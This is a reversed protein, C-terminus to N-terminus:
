KLGLYQGLKLAAKLLAGKTGSSYTLSDSWVALAVTGASSDQLRTQAVQPLGNTWQYGSPDCDLPYDIYVSGINAQIYYSVTASGSVPAVGAVNVLSWVNATLSSVTTTVSSGNAWTINLRISTFTSATYGSVALIPVTFSYAIGSTVNFQYQHIAPRFAEAAFTPVIAATTVLRNYITAGSPPVPIADPATTFGTTSGGPAAKIGLTSPSFAGIPSQFTAGVGTRTPSTRSNVDNFLTTFAQTFNTNEYYRANENGLSTVIISVRGLTLRINQASGVASSIANAHCDRNIAGGLATNIQLCGCRTFTVGPSNAIVQICDQFSCDYFDSAGIVNYLDANRTCICFFSNYWAQLGLNQAVFSDCVCSIFQISRTSGAQRLGMSANAIAATPGIIVCGQVVKDNLQTFTSANGNFWKLTCNQLDFLPNASAAGTYGWYKASSPAIITFVSLESYGRAGSNAVGTINNVSIETAFNVTVTATLTGANYSATTKSQPTNRQGNISPHSGPFTIVDGGGARLKLDEVFTVNPQATNVVSAIRTYNRRTPYVVGTIPHTYSEAVGYITRDCVISVGSTTTNCAAM